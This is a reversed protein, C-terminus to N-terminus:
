ECRRSDSDSQKPGGKAVVLNYVPGGRVERHVRLQFRDELIARLALLMRGASFDGESNAVIDFGQSDVWEPAGAIQFDMVAYANRILRRLPLNEVNMRGPSVRTGGFSGGGAHPKISAVEFAPPTAPTQAQSRPPTPIGVAVPIVVATMSLLIKKASNLNRAIPHTLDPIAM